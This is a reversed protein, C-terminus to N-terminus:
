GSTPTEQYAPSQHMPVSRELLKETIEMYKGVTRSGEALRAERLTSTSKEYHLILVREDDFLVYDTLGRGLIDTAQTDQLFFVKEGCEVDSEYAPIEYYRLYDTLPLVFVRIRIMELKRERALEYIERQSRVFEAVLRAAAEHDGEKFKRYAISDSEDYEQLLEVKVWRRRLCSFLEWFGEVHGDRTPLVTEEDFCARHPM